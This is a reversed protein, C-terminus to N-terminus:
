AAIGLLQNVEAHLERQTGYKAEFDRRSIALSPIDRHVDQTTVYVPRCELVGRHHWPCLPITFWHGLRRGGETLHHVDFGPNFRGDHKCAICGIRQFMRIRESEHARQHKPATM